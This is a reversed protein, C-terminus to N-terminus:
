ESNHKGLACLFMINSVPRFSEVKSFVTKLKIGFKEAENKKNKYYLRNFVAVGNKSLLGKIKTLFVTKEFKEPFVDGNYLDVIILDYFAGSPHIKVFTQADQISIKVSGEDLGLYKKGLGVIEPDIDVGTIKSDPWNKNILNVVTGGGLGLILCNKIELKSNKIKHLTQKWITEVIGGSQTLGEAQIYTGMGWTRVVKLKGNFKSSKEALVKTGIM